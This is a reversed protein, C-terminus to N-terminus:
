SPNTTLNSDHGGVVCVANWDAQLWNLAAMSVHSPLWYKGRILLEYAVLKEETRPDLIM